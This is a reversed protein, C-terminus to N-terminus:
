RRELWSPAYGMRDVFIDKGEFLDQRQVTETQSRSELLEEAVKRPAVVGVLKGTGLREVEFRRLSGIKSRNM